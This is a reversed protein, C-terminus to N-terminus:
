SVIMKEVPNRLQNTKKNQMVSMFVTLSGVRGAYMLLIIIFRSFPMLDRTIGMSLGVTGIASFAEFVVDRLPLEQIALIVLCGFFVLMIYFATAVFSRKVIDPEVRRKFTDVDEKNSINAIVSLLIVAFTTVKIGGATSGPGAGILMLLMTLLISGDGMSATDVTNFGATRPTISQFLAALVRQGGSLGSFTDNRELILLLVASVSILLGTFTLAVKSHLKYRNIHWKNRAIDDWVIFGIGGVIILIMVTMNVLLDGSFPVLSSYPAITGM